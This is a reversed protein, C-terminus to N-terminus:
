TTPSGPLAGPTQCPSKTQVTPNRRANAARLQARRAEAQEVLNLAQVVAGMPPAAPSPAFKREDCEGLFGCVRSKLDPGPEPAANLARCFESTTMEGEPLAFAAGFYSRVAYSVRSLVSGTETQQSLGALLYRAQAEPSIVIPPKPRLLLWLAIGLLFLLMAGGVIIWVSYQDWLGPPVLGRPPQLGPIPEEEVAAAFLVPASSIRFFDSIRFGFCLCLNAGISVFKQTLRLSRVSRLSGSSARLLRPFLSLWPRASILLLTGSQYTVSRCPIKLSM